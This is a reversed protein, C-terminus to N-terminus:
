RRSSARPTLIFSKNAAREIDGKDQFVLGAAFDIIRKAVEDSTNSLDLFVTSGSRFAEGVSRADEYRRPRQISVGRTSQEAFEQAPKSMSRGTAVVAAEDVARELSAKVGYAELGVVRALMTRLSRRFVLVVVLVLLPWVLAQIYNLVLRAVDM